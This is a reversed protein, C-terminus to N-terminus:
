AREREKARWVEVLEGYEIHPQGIELLEQLREEAEERTIEEALVSWAYYGAVYPLFWDSHAHLYAQELDRVKAQIVLHCVQCLPLLNWWRCNGKDGDLHHVTLVRQKGGQSPDGGQHRCRSSCKHKGRPKSEPPDPHFCRVCEWGAGEKAATAIAPWDDPYSGGYRNM